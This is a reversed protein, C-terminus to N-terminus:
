QLLLWMGDMWSKSMIFMTKSPKQLQPAIAPLESASGTVLLWPSCPHVKGQHLYTLSHYAHKSVFSCDSLNGLCTMAPGESVDLAEAETKTKDQYFALRQQHQTCIQPWLSLWPKALASRADCGFCQRGTAPLRFAPIETRAQRCATSRITTNSKCAGGQHM